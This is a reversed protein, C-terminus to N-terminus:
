LEETEAETRWINWSPKFTWSGSNSRVWLILTVLIILGGFIFLTTLLNENDRRKTYFHIYGFRRRFYTEPIAVGYWGLFLWGIVGLVIWLENM